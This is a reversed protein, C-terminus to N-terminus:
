AAPRVTAALAPGTGLRAHPLTTPASLLIGVLFLIM